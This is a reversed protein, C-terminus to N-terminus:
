KGCIKFRIELLNNIVKENIDLSITASKQGPSTIEVNNIIKKIIDILLVKEDTSFPTM